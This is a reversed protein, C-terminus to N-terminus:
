LIITSLSISGTLPSGRLKGGDENFRLPVRALARGSAGSLCLWDYLFKPMNLDRQLIASLSFFVLHPNSGVLKM